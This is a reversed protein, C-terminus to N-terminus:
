NEELDVLYHDYHIAQIDVIIKHFIDFVMVLNVFHISYLNQNHDM